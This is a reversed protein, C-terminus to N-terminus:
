TGHRKWKGHVETGLWHRFLVWDPGAEPDSISWTRQPANMIPIDLNWYVREGLVAKNHCKQWVTVMFISLCLCLRWEFMWSESKYHFKSPHTIWEAGSNLFRWFNCSWVFLYQWGEALNFYLSVRQERKRSLFWVAPGLTPHYSFDLLLDMGVITLPSSQSTAGSQTEQACLGEGKPFCEAFVM